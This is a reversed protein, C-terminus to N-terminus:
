TKDGTVIALIDEDNMLRYDEGDDGKFGKGNSNGTYKGFMVRAGIEPPVFGRIRKAEDWACAGAAVLTGRTVAWQDREITEDTLLLGGATKTAVPDPKVLVRMDIPDYGSTNLKAHQEREAALARLEDRREVFNQLRVDLPPTTSINM